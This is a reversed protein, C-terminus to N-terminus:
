CENISRPATLQSSQLNVILKFTINKYFYWDTMILVMLDATAPEAPRCTQLLDGTAVSSWDTLVLYPCVQSKSKEKSEEETEGSEWSCYWKLM